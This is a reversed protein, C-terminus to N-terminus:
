NRPALTVVVSRHAPVVIRVTIVGPSRSPVIIAELPHTKGTYTWSATPTAKGELANSPFPICVPLPDNNYNSALATSSGDAQVPGVQAFLRWPQLLTPTVKDGDVEFLIFHQFGGDEPSADTPAGAGGTVYYNIGDHVSKYYLHEHGSFVHKVGYKVFLNHVDIRNAADAWGEKAEKPFLPHHMFVFDLAIFHSAGYDFSGYLKGMKKRYLAAMEPRDFIEHNGPANYIPTLSQAALNLFINYEAEAEGVTEESGYICDGTWLALPPQLLRMETFIRDLTPPQPVNRGAARNDGAVVFTFHNPDAPPSVTQAGLGAPLPALPETSSAGCPLAIALLALLSLCTKM